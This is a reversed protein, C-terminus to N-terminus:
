DKKDEDEVMNNANMMDEAPPVAGGRDPKQPSGPNRSSASASASTSAIAVVEEERLRMDVLAGEIIRMCGLCREDQWEPAFVQVGVPMGKSGQM